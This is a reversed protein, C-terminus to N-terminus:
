GETNEAIIPSVTTVKFRNGEETVLRAATVTVSIIEGTKRMVKWTGATEPHGDLFKTHLEAVQEREKEPVVITFHQGIVEEMEYGYIDCYAQNVKVFKGDKNTVCIGVDVVNFISNILQEQEALNTEVNKQDTIDLSSYSVIEVNNDANKVPTFNYRLWRKEGKVTSVTKEGEVREGNLARNFENHFRELENAHNFDIISDGSNMDKQFLLASKLKAKQNLSIIRYDKNILVFAQLTNELLANANAESSKIVIAQKEIEETAAKLESYAIQLEENTSQLEENSTELEENSSQLEENSSQLEENLSQLEENTTELEEVFTQLHEKTGALEHELEVIRPNEHNNKDVDAASILENPIDIKEFVVVYIGNRPDTYLLPRCSVRIYFGENNHRIRKIEGKVNINDKISKNTVSRLEIQLDRIALKLLNSNMVGAKIELFQRVDGNVELIDLTDNMIVYPHEFTNYLTEKVMDSLSPAVTKKDINQPINAMSYTKPKFASFRIANFNNGRKRQFIKHKGESTSFLDTFQGVTESRGLFLFGDLNLAYHFIPIVHKQLNQGFYILLNRCSILDLKLFPPNNTVDHKSFLILQRISKIIEFKDGKKLMYTHKIEEPVNEVVEKPYIGKRATNIAQEDIDTAFIQVNFDAIKSGLLKVLLIAISYAEEGTACGTTWIRIPDGLKKSAIIKSLHVELSRFADLDRFFSTVGILLTNFLKDLEDHNKSIHELYQNIDVIKLEVMRKELRRCITSPKYNSFDTGTRKSLLKLVQDLTSSENDLVKKTIQSNPHKFIEELEEGIKDPSLVLDIQGTEIASIPMGDYKATHPEQAITIGGTAKIAKVGKAGDSGTGSLIIGIAKERKEEALSAFFIDVSPKPGMQKTPKSLQLYGKSIVIESDPPTIYITGAKIHQHNKAEVVELSTQRSLLQVLMSKYTPSLHQAIIISIGELNESLHSVFEQLAELGGASAGVGVVQLDEYSQKEKSTNM